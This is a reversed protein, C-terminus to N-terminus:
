VIICQHDKGNGERTEMEKEKEMEKTKMLVWFLFYSLLSLLLLSRAAAEDMPAPLSVLTRAKWVIGNIRIQSMFNM